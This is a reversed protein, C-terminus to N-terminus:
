VREDDFRKWDAVNVRHNGSMTQWPVGVMVSAHSPGFTGRQTRSILVTQLVARRLCLLLMVPKIFLEVGPQEPLWLHVRISM